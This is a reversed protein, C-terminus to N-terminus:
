TVHETRGDSGGEARDGPAVGCLGGLDPRPLKPEGTGRSAKRLNRQAPPKKPGVDGARPQKQASQSRPPWPQGPVPQTESLHSSSEPWYRSLIHTWIHDRCSGEWILPSQKELWVSM